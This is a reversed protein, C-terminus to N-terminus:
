LSQTTFVLQVQEKDFQLLQLHFSTSYLSYSSKLLSCAALVNQGLNQCARVWTSPDHFAATYLFLRCLGSFMVSRILAAAPPLPCPLLASLLQKNAQPKKWKFDPSFFLLYLTEIIHLPPPSSVCACNRLCCCIIFHIKNKKRLKQLEKENAKVSYTLCFFLRCIIVCLERLLGVKLINMSQLKILGKIFM